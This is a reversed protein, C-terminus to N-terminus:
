RSDSSPHGYPVEVFVTTGAGAASEVVLTGNLAEARERMGLLGLRDGQV